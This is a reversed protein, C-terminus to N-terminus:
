DDPRRDGSPALIIEHPCDFGGPELALERRHVLCLGVSCVPCTAVAVAPVDETACVYCNM